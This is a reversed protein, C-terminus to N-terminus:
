GDHVMMIVMFIRCIVMMIVMLQGDNVMMIVMLQAYLWWLLWWGSTLLSRGTESPERWAAMFRPQGFRMAKLDPLPTESARSVDPAPTM